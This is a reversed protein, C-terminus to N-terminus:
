HYYDAVLAEKSTIDVLNPFQDKLATCGCWVDSWLVGLRPREEFSMNWIIMGSNSYYGDVELAEKSRTIDFTM